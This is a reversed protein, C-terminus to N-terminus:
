NALCLLFLSISTTTPNLHCAVALLFSTQRPVQLSLPVIFGVFGLCWPHAPTSVHSRLGRIRPSTPPPLSFAQTGVPQPVELFYTPPFLLSDTFTSLAISSQHLAQPCPCRISPSDSSSSLHFHRSPATFGTIRSKSLPMGDMVVITRTEEDREEHKIVSIFVGAEDKAKLSRRPETSTARGWGDHAAQGVRRLVM